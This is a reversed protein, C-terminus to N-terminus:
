RIKKQVAKWIREHIERPSEGEGCEIRVWERRKSLKDYLAAVKKQFPVDRENRDLKKGRESKLWKQTSAVSPALLIVLDPRPLKFDDYELTEFFRVFKPYEAATCLAGGFALNTPAYRDSVVVGRELAARVKPAALGRDVAYPLSGHYSSIRHFDGHAGNLTNKILDGLPTGYRPFSFTTVHKGSKRIRAALLRVQTAKGAGDIGEFAILQHKKM